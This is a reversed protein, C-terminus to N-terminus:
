MFIIYIFKVVWLPIFRPFFINKKFLNLNRSCFNWNCLCYFFGSCNLSANFAICEYSSSPLWTNDILMFGSLASGLDWAITFISYFCLDVFRFHSVRSGAFAYFIGLLDLALIFYLSFSIFAIQFRISQFVQSFKLAHQEGALQLNGSVFVLMGGAPGSPQCDVTTISHQCQQFPLSTLKAVINPSGQIKQGEFTLM